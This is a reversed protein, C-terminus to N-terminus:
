FANSTITYKSRDIGLRDIEANIKSATVRKKEPSYERRKTSTNYEPEGIDGAMYIFNKYVSVYDVVSLNQLDMVKKDINDTGIIGRDILLAVSRQKNDILAVIYKNEDIMVVSKLRYEGFSYSYAGEARETDFELVGSKNTLLLQEGIKNISKVDRVRYILNLKDAGIEFVELSTEKLLCLKGTGCFLVSNYGGDIVQHIVEDKKQVIVESGAEDGSDGTSRSFIMAVDSSKSFDISVPDMNKEKPRELKLTTPRSEASKYILAEIFLNDYIVFGDPHPKTSYLEGVKLNPLDIKNSVALNSKLPVVIHNGGPQDEGTSQMRALMYTSAGSVATGEIQASLDTLLNDETYTSAGQSAPVHRVISSYYDNCPYSLLTADVYNMCPFPNNGIFVRSKEPMLRAAVKTSGLFHKTKVVTFYSEGGSSVSVEYDGKSVIKRIKTGESKSIVADMSGQNRISYDLPNSNQNDVVVVEIFSHNAIWYFAGLLFIAILTFVLRKRM